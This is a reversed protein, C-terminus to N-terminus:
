FRHPPFHAQCDKAIPHGGELLGHRAPLILIGAPQELAPVTRDGRLSQKSLFQRRQRAMGLADDMHVKMGAQPRYALM